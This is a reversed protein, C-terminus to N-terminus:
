IKDIKIVMPKENDSFFRITIIAILHQLPHCFIKFRDNVNTQLKKRDIDNKCENRKTLVEAATIGIHQSLLDPAFQAPLCDSGDNIYAEFYFENKIIRPNSILSSFCGKIIFDQYNTNSLFTQHRILSLYTYPLSIKPVSSRVPPPPPPPPLPSPASFSIHSIQNNSLSLETSPINTQPLFNYDDDDDSIVILEKPQNIPISIRNTITTSPQITNYSLPPPNYDIPEPAIHSDDNFMGDAYAQRIFEDMEDEDEHFNDQNIQRDPITNTTDNSITPPHVKFNLRNFRMRSEDLKSATKSLSNLTTEISANKDLLSEVYGGLVHTNKPTLLLMGRRFIIPGIVLIKAGPLTTDRDLGNITEYELGRLIIKGDTLELYLVRKTPPPKWQQTETIDTDIRENENQDGHINLVQSYYSESICLISNIQLAYKGSLQIKKANLDLDSPLYCADAILSIDTHLWQNYIKELTYNNTLETLQFQDRLWALCPQLWTPQIDFSYKSRFARRVNDIDNM